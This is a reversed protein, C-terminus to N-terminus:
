DQCKDEWSRAEGRPLQRQERGSPGIFAWGSPVGVEHIRGVARSDNVALHKGSGM